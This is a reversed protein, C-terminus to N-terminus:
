RCRDLAERLGVQGVHPLWGWRARRGRVDLHVFGGDPYVGIGGAEAQRHLEALRYLEALRVGPARIDAARGALHQSTPSGGVARNHRTCRCGSNVVIPSGLTDRLDQLWAVLRPDVRDFGCGCRCAFESRSFNTTLDGM